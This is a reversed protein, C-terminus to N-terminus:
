GAAALAQLMEFSFIGSGHGDGWVPQIGYTGVWGLKRLQFAAPTLQRAPGIHLNGMIDV